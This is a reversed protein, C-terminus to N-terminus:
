DQDVVQRTGCMDINRHSPIICVIAIFWRSGHSESSYQSNCYLYWSKGIKGVSFASRISFKGQFIVIKYQFIAM